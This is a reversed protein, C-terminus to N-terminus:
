EKEQCDLCVIKDITRYGYKPGMYYEIQGTEENLTMDQGCCQPLTEMSKGCICCHLNLKGM